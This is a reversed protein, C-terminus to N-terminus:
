RHETLFARLVRLVVATDGTYPAHDEGELPTWKAGPVLGAVIEGGRVPAVRDGNRHMVLTPAKVEPLSPRLDIAANARLMAIANSPSAAMRMSTSLWDTFTRDGAMSPAELAAFFVDGWCDHVTECLRELFAPEYGGDYGPENLMRATAGWLILASVREPSRAAFAAVLAAGDGAGFLAAKTSGVADLVARVDDVREDFTSSQVVRDSLGTGRKDFLIVRHDRSLERLFGNLAQHGYALELHTVWGLLLLLDPGEGLVHYALSVDGNRAYQTRPLATSPTLLFGAVGPPTSSRGSPPTDAFAMGMESVNTASMGSLGQRMASSIFGYAQRWASSLEDNWAAADLERVTAHLAQGLTEFHSPTVGYGAHRRGLGRLLEVSRDPEHLGDIALKLAHALKVKQGGIDEPFLARVAPDADFLRAYVGNVLADVRPLLRAFSDAVIRAEGTFRVEDVADSALYVSKVKELEARLEIASEYRARPDRRLCTDIITAFAPPVEPRLSRIRPADREIVAEALEQGVLPAFPLSGTVLEFMVLGFAFVDSRRTADEGSWLEPALYAPTGILAGPRTLKGRRQQTRLANAGDQTAALAIEVPTPLMSLDQQRVDSGSELKAIGFDLLKVEGTASVMVNSPKIDRHVIGSRHAVELGRALLTAVRLVSGWSMPHPVADLSQGDVYEYAIYPREEVEGIRFVGVVNPHALKAIARAELVFRKRAERSPTDAAIFKLAVRRDLMVDRGLYVHGMGGVGLPGEVEFSDFSKPPEWWTKPAAETM